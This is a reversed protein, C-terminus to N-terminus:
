QTQKKYLSLLEDQLKIIKDNAEQLKAECEACLGAKYTATLPSNEMVGNNVNIQQLSGAEERLWMEGKGSVLWNLSLNPYAAIIAQMVDESFGSKRTRMQSLRTPTIGAIRCFESQSVQLHQMFYDLNDIGNM